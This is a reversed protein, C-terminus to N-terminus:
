TPGIAVPMNPDLSWESWSGPYLRPMPFGALKLALINHCATVGSGCYCAVDSRETVGLQEFRARLDAPSLLTKVDGEALNGEFPANAAGDIRGAHKDIPEFEGRFREPSRADFLITGGRMEDLVGQKEIVWENRPQPPLPAPPSAPARVTGSETPRGQAKWKNLGGDLVAAQECGIWKLMWWLRAAIAGTEDDYVTVRTGVGIGVRALVDVFARPEPLPHRGRSLDSRDSLDTDLDLFVAGPIHASDYATRGGDIKGHYWRADAIVLDADTSHNALWETSVLDNM